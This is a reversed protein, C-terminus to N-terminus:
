YFGSKMDKRHQYWRYLKTGKDHTDSDTDDNLGKVLEPPWRRGRHTNQIWQWRSPPWIVADVRGHLLSLPIPGFTSSDFSNNYNDSQVWASGRPILVLAEKTKQNSLELAKRQEVSAMNTNTIGNTEENTNSLPAGNPPRRCDGCHIWESELAIIRKVLRQGNSSRRGNERDEHIASPSKYNRLLVIDGVQYRGPRSYKKQPNLYRKIALFNQDFLGHCRTVWVWDTTPSSSSSSNGQAQNAVKPNPNLTPSMSNGEVKVVTGVLDNFAVTLLMALGGRYWNKSM